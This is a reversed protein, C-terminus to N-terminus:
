GPKGSCVSYTLKPKAKYAADMHELLSQWLQKAEGGIYEAIENMTPQNDSPFIDKWEM